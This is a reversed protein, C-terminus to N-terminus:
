VIVNYIQIQRARGKVSIREGKVVTIGELSGVSRYTDESLVTEGPGAHDCLRSGMNVNDGL